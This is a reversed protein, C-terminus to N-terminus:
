KQNTGVVVTHKKDLIKHVRMIRTSTREMRYGGIDLRPSGQEVVWGGVGKNNNTGLM